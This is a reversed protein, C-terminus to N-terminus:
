KLIWGEGKKMQIPYKNKVKKKMREVAKYIAWEADHDATRELIIGIKEKSIVKGRSQIFLSLIKRDTDTLEPFIFDGWPIQYEGLYVFFLKSFLSGNNNILGLQLQEDLSLRTVVNVLKACIDRVIVNQLLFDINQLSQDGKQRLIDCVNKTLEYNGGTLFLIKRALEPNINWGYEASLSQLYKRIQDISLPQTIYTNSIAEKLIGTNKGNKFYQGILAIGLNRNNKETVETIFELIEQHIDPLFNTLIIVINHEALFLALEQKDFKRKGTFQRLQRQLMEQPSKEIELDVFIQSVAPFSRKILLSLQKALTDTGFGPLGTIYINKGHTLEQARTLIDLNFFNLPLKEIFSQDPYM